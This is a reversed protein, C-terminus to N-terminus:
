LQRHQSDGCFPLENGFLERAKAMFKEPLPAEITIFSNTDTAEPIEMRWAHLLFGGSLAGTGYKKDGLLPHGRAAGQARIQHTRGTKIDALILTFSGNERLPTVRTIAAKGDTQAYHGSLRVSGTRAAFTKRNRRTREDRWLEDKRILGEVIALYLKKVKQERMLTTFFRAGEISTSFAIVGSSGRDLRHLPGPRFSLSPPLKPMLYLSVLEDLSRRGHVPIGAPKNLILLGRNEFLIELPFHSRSPPDDEASTGQGALPKVRVEMTPSLYSAPFLSASLANVTITQGSTIRSDPGAAEGDVLISGKRLLRHIASLPM